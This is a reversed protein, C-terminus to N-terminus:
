MWKRWWLELVLLSWLRPSHDVRSALHEDWLKRIAEPRFVELLKAGPDFLVQQTFDRM